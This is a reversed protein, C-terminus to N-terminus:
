DGEGTQQNAKKFSDFFDSFSDFERRYSLGTGVQFRRGGSIDPELKQYIKLKLTRNKNLIYEIVIDDGVFAGTEEPVGYVDNGIGVNGGVQISLRDDLFRKTISLQIDQNTAVRSSQDAVDQNQTKYVFDFQTNSFIKNEESAESFLNNILLSFQNSLFESLTNGATNGLVNGSSFDSPFFQGIVILGFVQRNLENQDGKLLRLKGDTFTQLQSTLSPFKIDFNIDPKLLEGELLLTLEVDTRKYAEAELNSGPTIYEKIFNLPTVTLNKYEAELKIKAEFPDGNWAITGGKKVSFDKNIVNWFTFLYDGKEITYDGFMQFDEGRPVLIRINGRGQGRIVDGLQENFILEMVANEKISLDMEVSIGVPSERTLEGGELVEEEHKNVFRITNLETAERDYTVPIVIHTSDDVSANVYIDVQSFRGNFLVEGAGLATGYYLSNDEKKTEMALFRNTSLTAAVGLDKLYNHSIGGSITATNGFKDRIVTGSADFLFSKAEIESRNFTYRTKLYDVTFAGNKAIIEGSIDPKPFKGKLGFNVDFAGVINTVEPAVFYSAFNLPYNDVTLKFDFYKAKQEEPIKKSESASKINYFGSVKLSSNEDFINMHANARGKLDKAFLDLELKGYTDDNIFFADSRAWASISEMKFVNRIDINLTYVGGFDLPDYDWIKDIYSFDLNTVKLNIGETGSNVLEVKKDNNTMEFDSITLDGKRFIIKNAPNIIWPSEFIMLNEQLLSLGYHTSDALFFIGQLTLNDFFEPSAAAFSVGFNLSDKRLKIKLNLTPLIEKEKSFTKAVELDIQALSDQGNFDLDTDGLTLNGYSLSPASLKFTTKKTQGSFFGKVQVDKLIGLKEDVLWNLGKSDIINVDFNFDAAAVEKKPPKINLRESFGPFNEVMYAAFVKPLQDITFKGDVKGGIVESLLIFTKTGEVDITSEAVMSNIEYREGDKTISFNKLIAKGTLDALKRNQLNLDVVGALLMDQSSLNLAKLDLKRVNTKFNYIPIEGTFDIEGGFSFDINDDKIVFNGDFLNQNLKGTLNANEYNYNKFNFSEINAELDANATEATLGSGNLVKSSFNVLGLDPNQAWTGLDFDFLSLEGRYTAADIGQLLNMQMDMRARGIDTRLDGFAVFDAFFGDFRGTFYLHGLRDFTEPPKFNPLLQRLTRMTTRMETLQLNVIEQSKVTLNRSGFNGALKSGDPLNIDLDRARLTNVKGSIVGEIRLVTERNNRFFLNEELKPAFVMIDKLAVSSKNIKSSIRVEDVFEKFDLYRKYRFVLTDGIESDPTLIRLGNLTTRTPTVSAEKVSLENLQFGSSTQGSICNVIGKFNLNQFEFSDIQIGIDFVELHKFDLETDSTTKVPAKYYNNLSFNSGDVDFHRIIIKLALSDSNAQPSGSPTVDEDIDLQENGAPLPKSPYSKTNFTLGHLDAKQIDILKNPLDLGNFTLNGKSLIIDLENGRVEDNKRFSVNRLFLEDLGLSFANQTTDQPIQEQVKESTFLKELFLEVNSNPAGDIRHINVLADSLGLAEIVLGKRFLVLPNLNFDVDLKGAYLLTDCNYDEIFVEELILHDFFSLYIHDFRLPTEVKQEISRTVKSVLLNQVAPIQVFIVLFLLLLAVWAIIRMCYRFIQRLVYHKQVQQEIYEQSEKM